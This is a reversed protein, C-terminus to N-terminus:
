DNKQGRMMREVRPMVDKGRSALVGYRYENVAGDPTIDYEVSDGAVPDHVLFVWMDASEKKLTSRIVCLIEELKEPMIGHTQVYTSIVRRGDFDYTKKGLMALEEAPANMDRLRMGEANLWGEDLGLQAAQQRGWQAEQPPIKTSRLAITDLYLATVALMRDEKTVPVGAEEMLRLAMVACAGCPEIQVYPADPPYDTPHHDVCAIVRGPHLPQHHDVLVLADSEQTQGIYDDPNVGFRPMVRRSQGDARTPLVIQSLVGMRALLRQMLVCAAASDVDPNDHGTIVVRGQKEAAKLLRRLKETRESMGTTGEKVRLFCVPAAQKSKRRYTLVGDDM